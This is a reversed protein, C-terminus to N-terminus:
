THKKEKVSKFDGEPSFFPILGPSSYVVHPPLAPPFWFWCVSLLCFNHNTPQYIMQCACISPLRNCITPETLQTKIKKQHPFSSLSSQVPVSSFISAKEWKEILSDQMNWNKEKGFESEVFKEVIESSWAKELGFRGMKFADLIIQPARKLPVVHIIISKYSFFLELLLWAKKWPSTWVGAFMFHKLNPLSVAKRKKQWKLHVSTGPFHTLLSM